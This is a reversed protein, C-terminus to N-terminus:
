PTEEPTPPNILAHPSMPAGNERRAMWTPQGTPAARSSISFRKSAARWCKERRVLESDKRFMAEYDSLALFLRDHIQPTLNECRGAAIEFNCAIPDATM